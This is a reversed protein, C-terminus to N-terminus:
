NGISKWEPGVLNPHVYLRARDGWDGQGWMWDTVEEDSEGTEAQRVVCAARFWELDRENTNDGLHEVTMTKYTAM